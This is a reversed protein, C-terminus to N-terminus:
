FLGHLQTNFQKRVPRKLVSQHIGFQKKPIPLKLVPWMIQFVVIKSRTTNSCLKKYHPAGDQNNYKPNSLKRVLRKRVTKKLVTTKKTHFGANKFSAIKYGIAEFNLTPSFGDNNVFCQNIAGNNKPISCSEFMM